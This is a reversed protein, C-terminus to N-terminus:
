KSPASPTVTKKSVAEDFKKNSSVTCVWMYRGFPSKSANFIKQGTWSKTYAGPDDITVDYQLHDKDVRKYRQILHLQETHPRGVMDLWTKDNFGVSDVVLTDGNEYWGISEGYWTPDPDESHKRNMWVPIWTPGYEFLIYVVDPSQIFRFKSPNFYIRPLGFPDCYNINPDTTNEFTANVGFGPREAKLKALAWPQYPTGDELLKGGRDKPNLSAGAGADWDGSLDVVKTTGQASTGGPSPPNQASATSGIALIGALAFCALVNTRQRM